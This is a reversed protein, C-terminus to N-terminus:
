AATAPRLTPTENNEHRLWQAGIRPDGLEKLMHPFAKLYTTFFLGRLDPRAEYIAMTEAPLDTWKITAKKHHPAHYNENLMVRCYLREIPNTPIITRTLSLPDDGYLGVHETLRRWSQMNAALTLPILYGITFEAWWGNVAVFYLGVVLAVTMIGVDRYCRARARPSMHGTLLARTFMCMYYIPAVTLETLAALVRHWRKSSKNVYPWFELDNDTGIMGHHSTHVVRFLSMPALTVTGSVIGAIDNWRRNSSLLFHVSEHMTLFTSNVCVSAALTLVVTLPWWGADWAAIAGYGLIPWAVLTFLPMLKM